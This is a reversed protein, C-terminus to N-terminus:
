IKGLYHRLFLHVECILHEPFDSDDEFEFDGTLTSEIVKNKRFM